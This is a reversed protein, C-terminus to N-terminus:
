LKIFNKFDESDKGDTKQILPPEVLLEVGANKRFEIFVLKAPRNQEPYLFMIRKPELGFNRSISLLDILLDADYCIYLHGANFLYKNAFKFIDEVKLFDKFRANKEMTNSSVKGRSSERYPPNCVIIDYDKCPKFNNIDCNYINIADKLNNIEITKKLCDFLDKQLEVADVCHCYLVKYLYISLVGSGAGIDLCRKFTKTKIFRLLVISDTSFRYGKAPQCIKIEPSFINDVTINDM